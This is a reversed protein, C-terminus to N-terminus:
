HGFDNGDSRVVGTELQLFPQNFLQSRQSVLGQVEAGM